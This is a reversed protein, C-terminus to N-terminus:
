EIEEKLTIYLGNADKLVYGDSTSAITGNIIPIESFLNLTYKIGDIIIQVKDKGLYLAM